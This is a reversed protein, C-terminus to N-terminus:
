RRTALEENGEAARHISPKVAMALARGAFVDIGANGDEAGYLKVLDALAVQTHKPPLAREHIALARWYLPSAKDSRGQRDYLGVLSKLSDAVAPHGMGLARERIALSRKYLPEAEAYQGRDLYLDALNSLAVVLEPHGPTLSREKIALVEKYALEAAAHKGQRHYILALGGLPVAIEPRDRGFARERLALARRFIGELEAISRQRGHRAEKGNAQQPTPTKGVLALARQYLSDAKTFRGDSDYLEALHTLSRVVGPHSKGLEKEALALARQYLPEAQRSGGGTKYLTGLNILSAVMVSLKPQPYLNDRRAKEWLSLAREYFSAAKASHGQERYLMALNNLNAALQPDDQGVAKTNIALSRIYLPEAQAYRGQKRYLDALSDLTAVLRLHDRGYARERVAVARRYMSEAEAYRRQRGYIGALKDLPRIADPHEPGLATEAIHLAERYLPEAAAEEGQLRFLEAMTYTTVALGPDRAPPDDDTIFRAVEQGLKRCAPKEPSVGPVWYPIPLVFYAVLVGAKEKSDATATLSGAVRAHRLDVITANMSFWRNRGWWTFAAGYRNLAVDHDDFAIANSGRSVNVAVLYRIDLGAIRQRFAPENVLRQWPAPPVDAADMEPFAARRFADSPVIRLNPAFKGLARGICRIADQELDRLFRVQSSSGGWPQYPSDNRQVLIVAINEQAKLGTPAMRVDWVNFRTGGCGVLVSVLLASIVAVWRPSRPRRTHDLLNTM